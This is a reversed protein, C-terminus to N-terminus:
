MSVFSVNVSVLQVNQEVYKNAFGKSNLIKSASRITVDDIVFQLRKFDGLQM